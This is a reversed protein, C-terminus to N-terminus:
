KNKITINLNNVKNNNQKFQQVETIFLRFRELIKRIIEHHLSGVYISLTKNSDLAM